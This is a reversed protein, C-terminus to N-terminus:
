RDSGADLDALAEGIGEIRIRPDREAQALCATNEDVDQGRVAREHPTQFESRQGGPVVRSRWLSGMPVASISLSLADRAADVVVSECGRVARRDVAHQDGLLPGM